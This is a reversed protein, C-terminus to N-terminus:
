EYGEAKASVDYDNILWNEDTESYHINGKVTIRVTDHWDRMDADRHQGTIKITALFKHKYDGMRSIEVEECHYESGFGGFTSPTRAMADIVADENDWSHDDIWGRVINELHKELDNM